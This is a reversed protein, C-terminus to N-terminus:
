IGLKALTDTLQGIVAALRPHEAEIRLTAERLQAAAGEPVEGAPEGTVVLIDQLAQELMRRSEADVSRAGALERHLEELLERLRTTGM